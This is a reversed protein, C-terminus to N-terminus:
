RRSGPKLTLAYDTALELTTFLEETIPGDSSLIKFGGTRCESIEFGNVVVIRLGEKNRDYPM